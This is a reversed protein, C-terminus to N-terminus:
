WETNSFTVKYGDIKFMLVKDTGDTTSLAAVYFNSLGELTKNSVVRNPLYDQKFGVDNLEKLRSIGFQIELITVELEENQILNEAHKYIDM